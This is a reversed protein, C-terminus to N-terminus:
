DWIYREDIAIGYKSFIRRVEDQFSERQHHQEQNEIYKVLSDRHGPSISFAGYGNQWAFNELGKLSSKIWKASERKIHGLLDAIAVTRGLTVLLHTHDEYGGVREIPCKMANCLYALYEFVQARNEPRRLYCKRDKTSFIVHLYVQALSQAM